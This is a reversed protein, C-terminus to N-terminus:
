DVGIIVKGRAHGAAVRELASRADALAHIGDIAIELRGAAFLAALNALTASDHTFFVFRAAIEDDSEVGPEVLSLLTGGPRLVARSRRTTEGGVADLVLDVQSVARAFDTARYDIVEDAGLGVLWDHNPRSATAIVRAGARHALQVALHGVGGAGAHILVTQGASLRGEDFLSLWATGGASPLAAAQEFSMANPMAAVRHAPLTLSQGFAGGSTPDVRGLVRDGLAFGAVLPGTAEVVGAFDTGLVYPFEIPMFGQMAGSLIKLDLPNVSAARIRVRIEGPGPERPLIEVLAADSPAGHRSTVFAKM